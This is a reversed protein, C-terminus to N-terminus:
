RLIDSDNIKQHKKHLSFFTIDRGLVEAKWGQWLSCIGWVGKMFFGKKEGRVVSRRRM